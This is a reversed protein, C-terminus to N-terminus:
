SIFLIFQLYITDNEGQEQEYSIYHFIPHRHRHNHQHHSINIRMALTLLPALCTGMTLGTLLTYM